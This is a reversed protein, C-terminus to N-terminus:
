DEQTNRQSQSHKKAYVFKAFESNSLEEQIPSLISVVKAYNKSQWEQEALRRAQRIQLDRTTRMADSEELEDLREFTKPDGSLASRGYKKLLAALQPVFEKVREPTSTQVLRWQKAETPSTLEVVRNLPFSHREGRRMVEVAIEYSRVDLTIQVEVRNSTYTIETPSSNTRTFGLQSCLFDFADQVTEDFPLDSARM